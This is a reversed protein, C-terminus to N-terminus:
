LHIALEPDFVHWVKGWKPAESALFQHTDAHALDTVKNLGSLLFLAALLFQLLRRIM